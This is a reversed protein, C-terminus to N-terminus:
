KSLQNTSESDIKMDIAELEYQLQNCLYILYNKIEALQERDTKGTINPLRIDHM